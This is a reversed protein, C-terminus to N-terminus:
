DGLKGWRRLCLDRIGKLMADRHPRMHRWQPKMSWSALTRAVEGWARLRVPVPARHKSLTLLRNRTKYYTVSPKPQYNRQVGKHWLKAEPIHVIRWGARAARICLETEEWYYFFREDIPGVQEIVERRLMICCGSIWDVDRPGSYQGRDQENEGLHFSDWDRTLAGGASQIIDPENHHYVMPGVVGIRPDRSGAELMLRVCDPSLVTDENLVIIWDARREVALKLGVNNNGAYGLNRTLNVIETEPCAARIAEVSGDTSANDLVVPKLGRCGANRLSELCELTDDKRNTNLILAITNLDPMPKKQVLAPRSSREALRTLSDTTPDKETV